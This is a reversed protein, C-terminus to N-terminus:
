LCDDVDFTCKREGKASRARAQISPSPSGGGAADFALPSAGEEEARAAHGAWGPPRRHEPQRPEPQAYAYAERQRPEPQTYAHTEGQRLEPQNYAYAERPPKEAWGAKLEPTQRHVYEEEPESLHDMGCLGWFGGCGAHGCQGRDRAAGRRAAYAAYDEDQGQEQRPGRRGRERSASLRKPAPAGVAGELTFPGSCDVRPVPSRGRTSYGVRGRGGDQM